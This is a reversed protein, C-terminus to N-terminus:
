LLYIKLYIYMCVRECEPFEPISIGTGWGEDGPSFEQTSRRLSQVDWKQGVPKSWLGWVKAPLFRPLSGLSTVPDPHVLCMRLFHGLLPISPLPWPDQM